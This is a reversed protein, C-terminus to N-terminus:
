DERRWEGEIVDDEDRPMHRLPAPVPIILLLLALVDSVVGPIILLLGAIMKRASTLLALLPHRGEQLTQVMRGFVVIREDQILMFGLFASVLLYLALWWGYRQALEIMLVLELVPFALLIMLLFLLRVIL